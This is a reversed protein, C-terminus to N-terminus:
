EVLEVILRLPGNREQITGEAKMRRIFATFFQSYQFVMGQTRGFLRGHRRRAKAPLGADNEGKTM